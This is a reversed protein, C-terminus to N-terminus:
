NTWKTYKDKKNRHKNKHHEKEFGKLLYLLKGNKSSVFLVYDTFNCFIQKKYKWNRMCLWENYYNLHTQFVYWMNQNVVYRVFSSYYPRIKPFIVLRHYKEYNEKTIYVKTQLSVYKWIILIIEPPFITYLHIISKNKESNNKIVLTTM